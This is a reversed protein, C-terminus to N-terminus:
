VKGHRLIGVEDLIKKESVSMHIAYRECQREKLKEIIKRSKAAERLNRREEECENELLRKVKEGTEEEARIYDIFNYFVSLSSAQLGKTGKKKMREMVDRRKEKLVRLAEEKERLRREIEAIKMLITEEIEKRHDLLAQLKFTFMGRM